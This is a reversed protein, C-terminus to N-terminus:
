QLDISEGWTLFQARNKKTWPRFTTLLEEFCQTAAGSKGFARHSFEWEHIPIFRCSPYKKGLLAVPSDGSTYYPTLFAYDVRSKWERVKDLCACFGEKHYIDGRVMVTRGNELTFLYMACPLGGKADGQWNLFAHVHRSRFNEAPTAGHIMWRRIAEAPMVMRKGCRALADCVIPSIHDEHSHTVYYEDTLEAIRRIQPQSLTIITRGGGPPTCGGNIDVAITRVASKIVFGSSYFKWFRPTKGKYAAIEALAHDVRARYFRGMAPQIESDAEGFLADLRLLVAEREPMPRFEPAEKELARAVAMLDTYKM